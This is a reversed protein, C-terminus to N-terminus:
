PWEHVSVMLGSIHAQTADPVLNIEKTPGSKNKPNVVVRYGTLGTLGNLRNEQGPVAWRMTFSTPSVQSFQLNTPPSIAPPSSLFYLLTLSSVTNLTNVSQEDIVTLHLM